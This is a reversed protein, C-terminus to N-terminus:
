ANSEQVEGFFGLEIRKAKAAAAAEVATAHLGCYHCKGNEGVAAQWKNTRRHFTVGRFEHKPLKNQANEKPTAPRLNSRRNDLRNGNIHDSYKDFPGLVRSLVLRNARISTTRKTGDCQMDM